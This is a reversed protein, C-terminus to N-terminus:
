PCGSLSFPEPDQSPVQIAEGQRKGKLFIVERGDQGNGSWRIM